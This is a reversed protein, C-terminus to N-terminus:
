FSEGCQQAVLAADRCGERSGKGLFGCCGDRLLCLGGKGLSDRTHSHHHHHSAESTTSHTSIMRAARLQVRLRLSDLGLLELFCVCAAAVSPASLSCLALVQAERAAQQIRCRSDGLPKDWGLVLSGWCVWPTRQARVTLLM